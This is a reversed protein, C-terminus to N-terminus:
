TNKMSSVSLATSVSCNTPNEVSHIAAPNAVNAGIFGFTCGNFHCSMNKDYSHSPTENKAGCPLTWDASKTEKWNQIISKTARYGTKSRESEIWSCAAHWVSPLSLVRVADISMVHLSTSVHLCLIVYSRAIEVKQYRYMRNKVSCPFCGATHANSSNPGDHKRAQPWPLSAHPLKPCHCQAVTSAPCLVSATCTTAFREWLCINFPTKNLSQQEGEM